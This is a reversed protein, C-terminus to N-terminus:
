FDLVENEKIEIEITRTGVKVHYKGVPLAIIEGGQIKNCFNDNADHIALQNAYAATSHLAGLLIRTAHGVKVPVNSLFVGNISVDYEGELVTHETKWNEYYEEKDRKGPLYVRIRQYGSGSKEHWSTKVIGNRGVAKPDPEVVWPNASTSASKKVGTLGFAYMGTQTKVTAVGTTTDISVPDGIRTSSTIPAAVSGMTNPDTVSANLMHLAGTLKDQALIIGNVPEARDLVSRFDAQIGKVADIGKVKSKLADFSGAPMTADNIPEGFVAGLLAQVAARDKIVGVVNCCPELGAPEQLAVTRAIGNVSIVQRMEPDADLVDGVKLSQALEPSSVQMVRGTYRNRLTVMGRAADAKVVACCPEVFHVPIALGALAFGSVLVVSLSAPALKM